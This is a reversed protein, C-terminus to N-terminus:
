CKQVTPKWCDIQLDRSEFCTTTRAVYEDNAEVTAVLSGVTGTARSFVLRNVARHATEDSEEARAM